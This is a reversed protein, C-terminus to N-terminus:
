PKREANIFVQAAKLIREVADAQGIRVGVVLPAGNDQAQDGFAPKIVQLDPYGDDLKKFPAFNRHGFEMQSVLKLWAKYLEDDYTAASLKPTQISLSYLMGESFLPTVVFDYYDINAFVSHRFNQKAYADYADNSDGFSLGPLVTNQTSDIFPQLGADPMAGPRRSNPTASAPPAAAERRGCAPLLMLLVLLMSLPRVSRM